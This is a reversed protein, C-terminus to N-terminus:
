IWSIRLASVFDSTLRTQNGEVKDTRKELNEIKKTQATLTTRIGKLDKSLEELTSKNNRVDEQAKGLTSNATRSGKQLEKLITIVDDESKNEEEDEEEESVEDVYIPKKRNVLIENESNSKTNQRNAPM